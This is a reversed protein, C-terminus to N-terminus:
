SPEVFFSFIVYRLCFYVATTLLLTLLLTLLANIESIFYM